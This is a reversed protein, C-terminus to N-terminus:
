DLHADLWQLRQGMKRGQLPDEQPYEQLLRSLHDKYNRGALWVFQVGPRLLAAERMQRYVGQAWEIKQAKTMSNLTEDYPDKEDSPLVLGYRASLIFWRDCNAEAWKRTKRFLPSIYIDRAPARASGKKKACQVLAIREM